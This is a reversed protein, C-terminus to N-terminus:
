QKNRISSINSLIQDTIEDTHTILKDNIQKKILAYVQIRGEEIMRNMKSEGLLLRTSFGPFNQNKVADTIKDKAFISVSGGLLLGAVAGIIFGVPGTTHLLTSIVAIGLVKGFGGSFTGITAAVAATVALSIGDTMSDTVTWDLAEQYAEPRIRFGKGVNVQIGSLKKGIVASVGNVVSRSFDQQATDLFGDLEARFSDSQELILRELDSIRGGNNRFHILHPVVKDDYFRDRAYLAVSESLRSAEDQVVVLIDEKLRNAQMERALVVCRAYYPEDTNITLNNSLSRIRWSELFMLLSREPIVFMFASVAFLHIWQAAPEGDPSLLIHIRSADILAGYLLQSPLGFIANLILAIDHANHIFTSKWIVNYEFFLGRMYVGSLAGAILCIALIHVFRTFRSFFIHHNMDWWLELYRYTMNGLLPIQKIEQKSKSIQQHFSFWIKRFIRLSASSTYYPKVPAAHHIQSAGPRGPAEKTGEKDKRYFHRLLFVAFVCINWLILLVVPNYIVHIKDGPGLYNFVIGLFFIGFCGIVAWKLPLHLTWPIQKLTEPLKQFLYHARKRILSLDNEESGSIILADLQIEPAFYNPDSEEIARILLIELIEREPM